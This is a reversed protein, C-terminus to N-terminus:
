LNGLETMIGFTLIRTQREYGHKQKKKTNQQVDICIDGKEKGNTFRFMKFNDFQQRFNQVREVM